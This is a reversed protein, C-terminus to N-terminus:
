KKIIKFTKVNKSDDIIKLLYVASPYGEMSITTTETKIKENKLLRGNMDILQYYLNKFSNNKVDLSLVSVTPNPYVSMQLNIDLNHVGLVSVIEFAQQVGQAVSGSSGTTNTYVTQGVSYSINGNSGTANGGANVSSQQAFVSGFGLLIFAASLKQKKNRM